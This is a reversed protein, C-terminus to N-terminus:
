PNLPEHTRILLSFLIELNIRSEEVHDFYRSRLEMMLIGRYPKLYTSLIKSIPIEGWGVPMHSDGRGFPIQHTQQKEYHHVAGGFNDHVHTHAILEKIGAVAEVPDFSYFRAAMYLHGIDLTIRVNERGIREVQEKLADLREAYCYPSHFLYPRANELCIFIDPYDTSLGNLSKAEIDILRQKEDLSIKLNGNIPFREEPIFRGSHYVLIKSGIESAFELSARFVSMHLELNEKDMLNLPNPSHVSYEFDFDKLIEKVRKVRRRDLKGYKIADVGHVPIETAKLGINKYHTLDEILRKLSGDIRVEDIKSGIKLM